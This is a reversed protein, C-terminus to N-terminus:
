YDAKFFFNKTVPERHITVYIRGDAEEGDCPDEFTIAYVYSGGTSQGEFEVSLLENHDSFGSHTLAEKVDALTLQMAKTLTTAPILM